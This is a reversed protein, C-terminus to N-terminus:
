GTADLNALVSYDTGGGALATLTVTVSETGRTYALATSGGVVPVPTPQLHHTAFVADFHARVKEATESSSATLAAQVRDGESTVMSSSVTSEPAPEIFAPFGAVVAGTEADTAPAPGPLLVPLPESVPLDPEDAEAEPPPPLEVGPQAPAPDAESGPAAPDVAPADDAPAPEAPAPLAPTGSAPTPAPAPPAPTASTGALAGTDDDSRQVASIVIGAGALLVVVLGLATATRHSLFAM